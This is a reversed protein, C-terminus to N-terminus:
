LGTKFKINRIRYPHNLDDEFEVNFPFYNIAEDKDYFSLNSVLLKGKVLNFTATKVRIKNLNYELWFLFIHSYSSPAQYKLEFGDEGRELLYKEFFSLFVDINM